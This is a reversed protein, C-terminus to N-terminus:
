EADVAALQVQGAIRALAAVDLELDSLQVLVHDAVVVLRDARVGLDELLVAVIQAGQAGEIPDELAVLAPGLQGLDQHALQVQDVRVIRLAGRRPDLELVPQALDALLVEPVRGARDLAVLLDQRCLRAVVAGARRQLAPEVVALVPQGRGADQLRDVLLEILRIALDAHV